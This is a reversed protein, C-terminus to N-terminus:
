KLTRGWLQLENSLRIKSLLSTMKLILNESFVMERLIKGISGDAFKAM